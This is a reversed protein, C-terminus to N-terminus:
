GPARGPGGGLVLCPSGEAIAGESGSSAGEEGVIRRCREEKGMHFRRRVLLRFLFVHMQLTM